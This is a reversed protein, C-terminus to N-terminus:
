STSHRCIFSFSWTIFKGNMSIPLSCADYVDSFRQSLIDQPHLSRKAIASSHTHCESVPGHADGSGTSSKDSSDPSAHRSADSSITTASAQPAVHRQQGRNPPDLAQHPRHENKRNLMSWRKVLHKTQARQGEKAPNTFPEVFVLAQQRRNPRPKSKRSKKAEDM